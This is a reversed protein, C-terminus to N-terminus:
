KSTHGTIGAFGRWLPPDRAARCRWCPVVVAHLVRVRDLRARHIHLLRRIQEAMDAGLARREVPRHQIREGGGLALKAQVQPGVLHAFLGMPWLARGRRLLQLLDEALQHLPAVQRRLRVRRPHRTDLIKVAGPEQVLEAAGALRHLRPQRGVGRRQLAPGLQLADGQFVDALLEGRQLPQRRLRRPVGGGNVLRQAVQHM